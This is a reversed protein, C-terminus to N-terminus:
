IMVLKSNPINIPETKTTIAVDSGNSNKNADSKLAASYDNSVNLKIPDLKNRRKRYLEHINNTQAKYQVSAQRSKLESKKQVFLNSRKNQFISQNKYEEEGLEIVNILDGKKHTILATAPVLANEKQPPQICSDDKSGKKATTRRDEIDNTDKSNKHISLQKENELISPCPGAIIPKISGM